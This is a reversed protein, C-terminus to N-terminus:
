GKVKETGEWPWAGGVEMQGLESMEKEQCYNGAWSSGRPLLCSAEVWAGEGRDPGLVLGPGEQLLNQLHPCVWLSSSSPFLALMDARDQVGSDECHVLRGWMSGLVPITGVRAAEGVLYESAQM